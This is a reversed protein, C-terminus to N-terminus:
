DNDEFNERYLKSMKASKLPYSSVPRFNNIATSTKQNDARLRKLIQFIFCLIKMKVFMPFKNLKGYKRTNMRQM